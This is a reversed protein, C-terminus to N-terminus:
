SRRVARSSFLAPFLEMQAILTALAKSTLSDAGFESMTLDDEVDVRVGQPTATLSTFKHTRMLRTGVVSANSWYEARMSTFSARQRCTLHATGNLSGIVPVSETFEFEVLAERDARIQTIYRFSTLLPDLALVKRIRDGDTGLLVTAAEALAVSPPLTINHAIHRTTDFIHSSHALGISLLLVRLVGCLHM